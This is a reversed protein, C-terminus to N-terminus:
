KRMDTVTQDLQSHVNLDSVVFGIVITILFFVVLRFYMQRKLQEPTLDSMDFIRLHENQYGIPLVLIM